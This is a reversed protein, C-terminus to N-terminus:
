CLESLVSALPELVAPSPPPLGDDRRNEADCAPHAPTSSRWRCSWRISWRSWGPMDARVLHDWLFVGDWGSAEARVALDVLVAPDGFPGSPPLYVGFRPADAPL